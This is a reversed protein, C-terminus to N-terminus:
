KSSKLVKIVDACRHADGKDNLAYAVSSGRQLTKSGEWPGIHFGAEPLIVHFPAVDWVEVKPDIFARVSGNLLLYYGLADPYTRTKFEPGSLANLVHEKNEMRFRYDDATAVLEISDSDLRTPKVYRTENIYAGEGKKASMTIELEPLLAFGITPVGRHLVAILSSYFPIGHVFSFTGDIPDLVWTWENANMLEQSGGFEEGLIAHTPHAATILARLEKEITEDAATVWTKDVKRTASVSEQSFERCRKMAHQACQKATKYVSDLEM